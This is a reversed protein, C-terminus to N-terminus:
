CLRLIFLYSTHRQAVTSSSLQWTENIIDSPCNGFFSTDVQSICTARFQQMSGGGGVSYFYVVTQNVDGIMKNYQADSRDTFGKEVEDMVNKSMETKVFGIAGQACGEVPRPHTM